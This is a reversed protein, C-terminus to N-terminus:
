FLEVWEPELFLQKINIVTFFILIADEPLDKSYTLPASDPTSASDHIM